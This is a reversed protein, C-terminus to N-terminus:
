ILDADFNDFLLLVRDDVLCKGVVYVLTETSARSVIVKIPMKWRTSSMCQEGEESVM